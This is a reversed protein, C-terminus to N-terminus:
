FRDIQKLEVSGGHRLNPCTKAIALAQDYGTVPLLFYGAVAGEAATTPSENIAEGTKAPRFIRGEDKLKEGGLLQGKRELERSWAIFENVREMEEAPTKAAFEPAPQHVILMFGPSVQNTSPALYRGAAFGALFLVFTLVAVALARNVYGPVWGRDAPVIVRSRKLEEVIRDELFSPPMQKTSLNALGRREEPTLDDTEQNM